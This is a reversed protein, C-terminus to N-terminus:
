SGNVICWMLNSNINEGGNQSYITLIIDIITPILIFLILALVRKPFKKKSKEMKEVDSAMVAKAYDLSGFLIVAVPAIIRLMVYLIHFAEVDDCTLKATKNFDINLSPASVNYIAIASEATADAADQKVKEVNESLSSFKNSTCKNYCETKSTGTCKSACTKCTKYTSSKKCETVATGSVCSKSNEGSCISICPDSKLDSICDSADNYTIMNEIINVINKYIKKDTDTNGNKGDLDCTSTGCENRYIFKFYKLFSELDEEFVYRAISKNFWKAFYSRRTEEADGSLTKNMYNKWNTKTGDYYAKTYTITNTSGEDIINALGNLAQKKEEETYSNGNSKKAKSMIQKFATLNKTSYTERETTNVFYITGGTKDIMDYFKSKHKKKYDSDHIDTFDNKTSYAYLNYIGYLKTGKKFLNKYQGGNKLYSVYENKTVGKITIYFAGSKYSISAKVYKYSSCNGDPKADYGLGSYTGNLYINYGGESNLKPNGRPTYKLKNVAYGISYNKGNYKLRYSTLSQTDKVDPGRIGKYASDSTEYEVSSVINSPLGNADIYSLPSIWYCSEAFAKNEGIFFSIFIITLITLFKIFTKKM